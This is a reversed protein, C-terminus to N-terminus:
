IELFVGNRGLAALFAEPEQPSLFHRAGNAETLLVGEELTSAHVFTTRGELSFTGSHYGPMSSGSIRRRARPTFRAARCGPLCIARAGPYREIVLKKEGVAYVLRSPIVLLLVPLALGCAFLSIVIAAALIPLFRPAPRSAAGFYSNADEKLAAVFRDPMYPSVVVPHAEGAIRLVVADSTCTTVQFVTGLDPYEYHGECFSPLWSGAIRRGDRLHIREAREIRERPFHRHRITGMLNTRITFETASIDYGILVPAFFLAGLSAGAALLVLSLGAGLILRPLPNEFRPPFTEM